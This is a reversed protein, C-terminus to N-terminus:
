FHAIKQIAKLRELSDEYSSCGRFLNSNEILSAIQEESLNLGAECFLKLAHDRAITNICRVHFRKTTILEESLNKYGGDEFRKLARDRAIINACRARNNQQLKKTKKM